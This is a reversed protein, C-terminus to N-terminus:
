RDRVIVLGQDEIGDIAEELAVHPRVHALELLVVDPRFLDDLLHLLEPQEARGDALFVAAQAEGRRDVRPDHLAHRRHPHRHRADEVRMEDHGGGDLAEAGLRLLPAVKRAARATLQAARDRQGLGVAPGVQLGDAGPRLQAVAAVHHVAGLRPDAVADVPVDERRQHLGVRRGVRRMPAHAQQQHLLAERPELDGALEPLDAVLADVGALQHEVVTLNRLLVEDAAHLAPSQLLNETAELEPRMLTAARPHPM